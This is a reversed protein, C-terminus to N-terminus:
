AFHMENGVNIAYAVSEQAFESKILECLQLVLDTVEASVSDTYTIVITNNELIRDGNDARYRGVAQQTFCGGFTDTFVDAITAVMLDHWGDPLDGSLGLTNPVLVKIEAM